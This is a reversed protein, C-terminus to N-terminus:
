IYYHIKYFCWAKIKKSGGVEEFELEMAEIENVPKDEINFTCEYKVLAKKEQDFFTLTYKVKTIEPKKKMTINVNELKLISNTEDIFNSFKTNKYENKEVAKEIDNLKKISSSLNHDYTTGLYRKILETKNEKLEDPIQLFLDGRLSREAAIDSADIDPWDGFLFDCSTFSFLLCILLFRFMRKKM